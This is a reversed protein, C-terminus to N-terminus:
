FDMPEDENDDAELVYFERQFLKLHEEDAQLFYRYKGDSDKETRIFELKRLDLFFNTRKKIYAQPTDIRKQYSVYRKQLTDAKIRIYNDKIVGFIESDLNDLNLPDNIIGIEHGSSAMEKVEVEYKDTILEPELCVQDYAQKYEANDKIYEAFLYRRVDSNPDDKDFKNLLTIHELPNISVRELIRFRKLMPDIDARTKFLSIPTHNTNIVFNFTNDITKTNENLNRIRIFSSATTQKITNVVQNLQQINDPLEDILGILAAFCGGNKAETLEAVDIRQVESNQNIIDLLYTKFCDREGYNFINYKLSKSANSLKYSLFGLHFKFELDVKFTKRILNLLDQVDDKMKNIEQQSLKSLKYLVHHHKLDFTSDFTIFDSISMYDNRKHVERLVKILTTPRNHDFVNYIKDNMLFYKRKLFLKDAVCVDLNNRKMFSRVDDTPELELGFFCRKEYRAIYMDILASVQQCTKVALREEDSIPKEKCSETIINTIEFTNHKLKSLYRLSDFDQKYQIKSFFKEYKSPYENYGPLKSIEEVFEDKTLPLCCCCCDPTYMKPCIVQCLDNYHNQEDSFIGAYFDTSFSTYEQTSNYGCFTFISPEQNPTYNKKISVKSGSGSEQEIWEKLGVLKDDVSPACRFRGVFDYFDSYTTIPYDDTLDDSEFFKLINKNFPRISGDQAIKCSLPHRMNQIMGANKYVSTDFLKNDKSIKQKILTALETRDFKKRDFYLHCSFAKTFLPDDNTTFLVYDTFDDFLEKTKDLFESKCECVGVADRTKLSLYPLFNLVEQVASEAGDFSKGDFDIFFRSYKGVLVEMVQYDEWLDSEYASYYKEKNSRSQKKIDFVNCLANPEYVDADEFVCKCGVSGSISDKDKFNYAQSHSTSSKKTSMFEFIVRGREPNSNLSTSINKFDSYTIKTTKHQEKFKKFTSESTFYDFCDVMEAM